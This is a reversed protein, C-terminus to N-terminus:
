LRSETAKLLQLFITLKLFSPTTVAASSGSGFVAVPDFLAGKNQSINICNTLQAAM